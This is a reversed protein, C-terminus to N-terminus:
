GHRPEKAVNALPADVFTDSRWDYRVRQLTSRHRVVGRRLFIDHFGSIFPVATGSEHAKCLPSLRYDSAFLRGEAGCVSCTAVSRAEALAVAEEVRLAAKPPLETRSSWHVRLGGHEEVLHTFYISGDAAAAAVREVLKTVLLQWGDSCRPFGPAFAVGRFSQLFMNPYRKILKTQWDKM